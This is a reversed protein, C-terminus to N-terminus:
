AYLERIFVTVHELNQNMIVIIKLNVLLPNITGHQLAHHMHISIGFLM